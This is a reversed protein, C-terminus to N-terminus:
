HDADAHTFVTAGTKKLLAINEDSISCWMVDIIKINPLKLLPSVDTIKFHVLKLEKLYKLQNMWSINFEFTKNPPGYMELLELNILNKVQSIDLNENDLDLYLEKLWTLKSINRITESSTATFVLTELNILPLLESADTHTNIVDVSLFRLNVLASLPSIDTVNKSWLFLESLKEHQSLVTIGSIDTMYNNIKLTKLNKFELIPTFNTFNGAYQIIDLYSTTKDERELYNVLMKNAEKSNESNERFDIDKSEQTKIISYEPTTIESYELTNTESPKSTTKTCGFVIFIVFIIAFKKRAV